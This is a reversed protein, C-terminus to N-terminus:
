KYQKGKQLKSVGTDGSGAVTLGVRGVGDEGSLDALQVKVKRLMRARDLGSLTSGGDPLNIHPNDRTLSSVYGFVDPALTRKGIAVALSSAALLVVCSVFDLAMWPWSIRYQPSYPAGNMTATSFTNLSKGLIGDIIAKSDTTNILAQQSASLYSNLLKTLARSPFLAVKAPSEEAYYSSYNELKLVADSFWSDSDLYNDGDYAPSGSAQVMNDLFLQAITTNYFLDIALRQDPYPRSRISKCGQSSCEVEMEVGTQTLNCFTQISSENYRHSIKITPITANTMNFLTNFHPTTSNAFTEGALVVESCNAQIYSTNITVKGILRDTLLYCGYADSSGLCTSDNFLGKFPIGINSSWIQYSPLDTTWWGSTEMHMAEYTDAFLFDWVPILANGGDDWGTRITETQAVLAGAKPSMLSSLYRANTRALITSNPVGFDFASPGSSSPYAMKVNYPVASDHFALERSVAQSGLYYWSWILVLLVSTLSFARLSWILSLTKPLSISSHLQELTAVSAGKQSKWLAYRRVLTAIITAFVITFLTVLQSNFEDLRILVPSVLDLQGGTDGDQGFVAVVIAKALLALPLLILVTDYAIVAWRKRDEELKHTETPWEKVLERPPLSPPTRLSDLNIPENQVQVGNLKEM